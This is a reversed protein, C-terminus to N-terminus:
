NQITSSIWHYDGKSDKEFIHLYQQGNKLVFKNNYKTNSNIKESCKKNELSGSNTLYCSSDNIALYYDYIYIKNGKEKAKSIIRYTTPTWGLQITQNVNSTGCVYRSEKNDFYCLRSGSLYFDEKSDIDQGFLTYYAKELDNLAIYEIQCSDGEPDLKFTKEKTFACYDKKKKKELSSLQILSGDLYKYALCMKTENNLNKANIETNEYFPLGNCYDLFDDGLYSYLAQIEESKADLTNINAVMTWVVAVILIATLGIAIKFYAPVRKNM